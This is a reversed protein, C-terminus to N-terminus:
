GRPRVGISKRIDLVVVDGVVRNGDRFRMRTPYEKLLSIRMNDVVEGLMASMDPDVLLHDHVNDVEALSGKLNSATVAQCTIFDADGSSTTKHTPRAGIVVATPTRMTKWEALQESHDVSKLEEPM